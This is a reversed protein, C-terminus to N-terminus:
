SDLRFSPPQPGKVPSAKNNPSLSAKNVPTGPNSSPKNKPSTASPKHQPSNPNSSPKNKPSGHSKFHLVDGDVVVYDKGKQHIKAAQKLAAENEESNFDNFSAVEVGSFTSELDTHVAGAAQPAKSGEPVSWMM